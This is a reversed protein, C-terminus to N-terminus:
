NASTVCDQSVIRAKSRTVPPEIRTPQLERRSKPTQNPIYTPDCRESAPTDLIQPSPEPTHPTQDPPVVPEAIAEQRTAQLLPFPRLTVEEELEEEADGQTKVRPKKAKQKAKPKWAGSDFAKKLRNV